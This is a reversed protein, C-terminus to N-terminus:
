MMGMDKGRIYLCGNAEPLIHEAGLDLKIHFCGAGSNYYDGDAGSSYIDVVLRGSANFAASQVMKANLCIIQVCHDRM